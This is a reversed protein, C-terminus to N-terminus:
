RPYGHKTSFSIGSQATLSAPTTDTNVNIRFPPLFKYCNCVLGKNITEYVKIKKHRTIHLTLLRPKHM